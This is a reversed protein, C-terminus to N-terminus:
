ENEITFVFKIQWYELIFKSNGGSVILNILEIVCDLLNPRQNGDLDARLKKQVPEFIKERTLRMKQICDAALRAAFNQFDSIKM